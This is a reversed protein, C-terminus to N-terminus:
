STDDSEYIDVKTIKVCPAMFPKTIPEQFAVLHTLDGTESNLRRALIDFKEGRGIRSNVEFYSNISWKLDKVVKWTDIKTTTPLKEEITVNNETKKESKESFNDMKIDSNCSISSHPSSGASGLAPSWRRKRKSGSHSSNAIKNNFPRFEGNSDSSIDSRFPNNSGEFDKLRPIFADLTGFIDSSNDVCNSDLSTQKSPPRGRPRNFDTTASKVAPKRIAGGASKASKKVKKAAKFHVDIDEISSQNQLGGKKHLHPPGVKVLTWFKSRKSGSKFRSKNSKLLSEIYHSEIRSSKLVSPAPFTSQNFWKRFLPLIATELHHHEKRNSVILHFLILHLSNIWGVNLRRVIEESTGTCLTCVFHFFTDGCLLPPVNPNRICEQHFWQQCRECQLM